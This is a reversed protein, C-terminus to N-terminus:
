WEYQTTKIQIEQQVGGKAEISELATKVPNKVHLNRVYELSVEQITKIYGKVTVKSMAKLELTGENQYLCTYDYTDSVICEPFFTNVSTVLIFGEDKLFHEVEEVNALKVGSALQEKIIEKNM